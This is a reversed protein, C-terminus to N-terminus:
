SISQFALILAAGTRVTNLGGVGIRYSPRSYCWGRDLYSGLVGMMCEVIGKRLHKLDRPGIDSRKVQWPGCAGLLKM